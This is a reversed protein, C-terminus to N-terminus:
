LLAPLEYYHGNMYTCTVSACVRIHMLIEAEIRLIEAEKGTFHPKSASVEYPKNQPNFFITSIAYYLRM